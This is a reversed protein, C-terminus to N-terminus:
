SLSPSRICGNAFFILLVQELLGALLFNTCFSVRQLHDELREKKNRLELESERILAKAVPHAPLLSAQARNKEARLLGARKEEPVAITKCIAV